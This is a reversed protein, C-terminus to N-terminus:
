ATTKSQIDRATFRHPLFIDEQRVELIESIQKALKPTAPRDGTEIMYYRSVGINLKDAMSTITENKLERTIRLMTKTKM